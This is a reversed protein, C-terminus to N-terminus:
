HRSLANKLLDSKCIIGTIKGKKSVLVASGHSLIGALVPFLTQENVIPLPEEMINSVKQRSFNEGAESLVSLARSETLTGVCKEGKMVPVQSFGQKEMLSIAKKVSDSEKVCHLKKSMLDLARAQKKQGIGELAEFLRKAKDYSPTIKGSEMKAILSQSVESLESLESQTLGLRKRYSKIEGIEPLMRDSRRHLIVGSEFIFIKM